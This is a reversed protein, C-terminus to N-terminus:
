PNRGHTQQESPGRRSHHEAVISRPAGLHMPSAGPATVGHWLGRSRHYGSNMRMAALGFVWFSFVFLLAAVVWVGVLLWTM